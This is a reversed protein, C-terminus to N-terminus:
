SQILKKFLEEPTGAFPFLEWEEVHLTSEGPKLTKLEGLTELEIFVGNTYVELNCGFDPYQAAADFVSKKLFCVNKHLYALWGSPMRAGIKVPSEGNEAKIYAVEDMIKLRADDMRTYPWLMLARDPTLGESGNMGKRLPFIATGGPTLMTIGWPACTFSNNSDNRLFHSIKISSDKQGMEITLEKYLQLPSEGDRTLVVRDGSQSVGIAKDDSHYCTDWTEPAVWFRHGGFVKYPGLPSNLALTPLEALLNITSAKHILRVIRPGADELYELCYNDNEIIKSPLDFYSM